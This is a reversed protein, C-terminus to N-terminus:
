LTKFCFNKKLFLINCAEVIDPAYQIGKNKSIEELAKDIGLGPRYPRHSAMAEVVDAVMLIKAEPLIEDGKLGYPYGSGNMREHHQLVTKAVPWPFDIGKLIDYGIQPHCKIISFEISSLRGPKSLIESPVSIKGLDHIMSAMHIGKVKDATFDMESAIAAALEAVRRQHGATYPDRSEVTHAIVQVVGDLTDQLKATRTTVLQELTELYLRKETELKQRRLANSINIIVESIKFPKVIYGYAGMELAKEAVDPDDVGSVMVVATEPYESIVYSFLNMGSEGPLRIDCLILDFSEDKMIRRAEEASTALSCERRIKDMIRKLTRLVSEEDDVVLIKRLSTKEDM